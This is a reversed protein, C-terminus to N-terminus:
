KMKMLQNRIDTANQINGRRTERLLAERYSKVRGSENQIKYGAERIAKKALPDSTSRYDRRLTDLDHQRTDTM